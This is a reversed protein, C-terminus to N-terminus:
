RLMELQLIHSWSVLLAVVPIPFLHRGPKWFAALLCCLPMGIAGVTLSLELWNAPILDPQTTFTLHVALIMLGMGFCAIHGLRFLRRQWSPYGGLWNDKQFFLGLIAGWIGGAVFLIWPLQPILDTM